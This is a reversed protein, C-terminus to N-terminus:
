IDATVQDFSSFAASYVFEEVLGINTVPLSSINRLFDASSWDIKGNKGGHKNALNQRTEEDQPRGLACLVRGVEESTIRGDQSVDFTKFVIRFFNETKVSNDFSM